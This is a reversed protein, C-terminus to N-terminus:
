IHKKKVYLYICNPFKISDGVTKSLLLDNHLYVRIERINFWVSQM